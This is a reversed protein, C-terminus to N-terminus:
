TSFKIIGAHEMIEGTLSEILVCHCTVLITEFHTYRNLVALARNKLHSKTEWPKEEGVPPEGKCQEYDKYLHGVTKGDRWNCARDPVWEHLDFEVTLPLQLETAIMHGTQLARTMPSSLILDVGYSSIQAMRSHVEEIGTPTLPVMDAGHGILEREAALDWDPEGHRM